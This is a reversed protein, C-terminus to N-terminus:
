HMRRRLKTSAGDAIEVRLDQQVGPEHSTDWLTVAHNGPALRITLPCTGRPDGGDVYVWVECGQPEASVSLTGYGPGPARPRGASIILTVRSGPEVTRGAPPTSGVALGRAMSGDRRSTVAVVLGSQRLREMAASQTLGTVSPVRVRWGKSVVVRVRTPAGSAPGAPPDQRIVTGEPHSRDFEYGAVTCALGAEALAKRASTLPLDVVEPVRTTQPSAFPGVISSAPRAPGLSVWIRVTGGKAVRERPAPEQRLVTGSPEPAHEEGAVQLRLEKPATRLAASESLGTLKPMSVLGPALARRAVLGGTSVLVLLAVGVTVRAPVNRLTHLLPRLLRDLSRQGNRLRTPVRGIWEGLRKGAHGLASGVRRVAESCGPDQIIRGGADLSLRGLLILVGEAAGWIAGLPFLSWTLVTVFLQLAGLVWFGLYFRHAGLGGLLVGLVGAAVASRPSVVPSESGSPETLTPRRIGRYGLSLEARLRAAFAGAHREVQKSLHGWNGWDRWRALGARGGPQPAGSAERTHREYASLCSQGRETEASAAGVSALYEAVEWQMALVACSFPTDGDVDRCLASAGREVLLRVVATHGCSAAIHLPTNDKGALGLQSTRLHLLDPCLDLARRVGAEDDECVALLLDTAIDGLPGPDPLSPQQEPRTGAAHPAGEDTPEARAPDSRDRSPCPM